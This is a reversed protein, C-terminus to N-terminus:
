NHEKVPITRGGDKVTRWGGNDYATQAMAKEEKAKRKAADEKQKILDYDIEERGNVSYNGKKPRDDGIHGMENNDNIWVKVKKTGAAINIDIEKIESGQKEKPISAERCPVEKIPGDEWSEHKQLLRKANGTLVSNVTILNEETMSDNYRKLLTTRLSSDESSCAHNKEFNPTMGYRQITSAMDAKRQLGESQSSSDLVASATPADKKQTPAQKQAYTTSM